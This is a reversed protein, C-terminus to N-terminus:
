AAQQRRLTALEADYDVLQTQLESIQQRFPETPKRVEMEILPQTNPVLRKTMWATLIDDDAM